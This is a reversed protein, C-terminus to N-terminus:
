ILFCPSRITESTSSPRLRISVTAAIVTMDRPMCQRAQQDYHWATHYWGLEGAAGTFRVAKLNGGDYFSVDLYDM